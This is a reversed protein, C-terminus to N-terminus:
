GERSMELFRRVFDAELRSAAARSEREKLDLNRYHRTVVEELEELGAGQTADRVSIRVELGRKVVVGEDVAVWETKGDETEYAILGPVQSAVLDVHRPLLCYSGMATEGCVKRAKRDAIRKVPTYIRLHMLDRGDEPGETNEGPM